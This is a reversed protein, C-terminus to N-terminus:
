APAQQSRQALRQAPHAWRARPTWLRAQLFCKAGIYMHAREMYAYGACMGEKTWRLLYKFYDGPSPKDLHWVYIMKFLGEVMESRAVTEVVPPEIIRETQLAEIMRLIEEAV